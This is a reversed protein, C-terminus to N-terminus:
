PVDSVSYLHKVSDGVASRAEVFSFLNGYQRQDFPADIMVGDHSLPKWIQRTVLVTTPGFMTALSVTWLNGSGGNDTLRSLGYMFNSRLLFSKRRQINETPIESQLSTVYCFHSSDSPNIHIIIYWLRADSRIHLRKAALAVGTGNCCDFDWRTWFNSWRVPRFSHHKM